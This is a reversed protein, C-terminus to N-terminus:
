NEALPVGEGVYDECAKHVETGYRMQETPFKTFRKLVKIEQYQKPCNVFDKLSSFSWTYNM